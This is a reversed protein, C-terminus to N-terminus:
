NCGDATPELIQNCRTVSVESGRMMCSRLEGTRTWSITSTRLLYVSRQMETRPMRRSRGLVDRAPQRAIRASPTLGGRLANCLRCRIMKSWHTLNRAILESLVKNHPAYHKLVKNRTQPNMEPYKSSKANRVKLPDYVGFGGAFRGDFVCSRLRRYRSVL